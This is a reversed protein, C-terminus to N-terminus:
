LGRLLFLNSQFPIIKAWKEGMKLCTCQLSHCLAAHKLGIQYSFVSRSCLIHIFTCIAGTFIKSRPESLQFLNACKTILGVTELRLHFDNVKSTGKCHGFTNSGLNNKRKRKWWKMSLWSQSKPMVAALLFLFFFTKKPNESLWISVTIIKKKHKIYFVTETARLTLLMSYQTQYVVETGSKTM